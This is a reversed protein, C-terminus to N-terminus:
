REKQKQYNYYLIFPMATLIGALFYVAFFIDSKPSTATMGIILTISVYYIVFAVYGVFIGLIGKGKLYSKFTSYVEGQCM